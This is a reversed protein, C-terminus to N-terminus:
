VPPAPESPETDEKMFAELRDYIKVIPEAEYVFADLRINGKQNGKEYGVYAIDKRDWLRQDLATIDDFTIEPHGPASLRDGVLKIESRSNYIAWAVLAIGVLPLACALVKQLTMEFDSREKVGRLQERLSLADQNKRELEAIQSKLEAAKRNGAPYKVWGDYAFWAAMIVLILALIYRTNRYYAGYRAIVAANPDSPAATPAREYDIPETPVSEEPDVPPTSESM